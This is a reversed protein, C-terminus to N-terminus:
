EDIKVLAPIFTLLFAILGSVGAYWFILRYGEPGFTNLVIGNTQSYATSGVATAMTLLGTYRGVSQPRAIRAVTGFYAPLGFMVPWVAILFALLIGTWSTMYGFLVTTSALVFAWRVVQITKGKKEAFWGGLYTALVVTLMGFTGILGAERLPLKQALAYPVQLTLITIYQGQGLFGIALLLFLGLNGVQVASNEESRGHHRLPDKHGPGTRALVLLCPFTLLIPIILYAYTRRWGLATIARPAYLTLALLGVGAGANLLGVARSLSERPYWTSLLTISGTWYFALGIGVLIQAVLLLYFSSSAAFLVSAIAPACLGVLAAYKAGWRDSLWGAPPGGLAFFLTVIAILTGVQTYTFGLERRIEESAVPFMLFYSFLPVTGIFALSLVQRRQKPLSLNM